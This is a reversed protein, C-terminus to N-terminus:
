SSLAVNVRGTMESHKETNGTTHLDMLLQIINSFYQFASIDSFAFSNFLKKKMNLSNFSITIIVLLLINTRGQCPSLTKRFRGESVVSFLHM